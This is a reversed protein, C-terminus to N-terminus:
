FGIPARVNCPAHTADAGNMLQQAPSAAGCAECPPCRAPDLPAHKRKHFRAFLDSLGGTFGRCYLDASSLTSILDVSTPIESVRCWGFLGQFAAMLRNLRDLAKPVTLPLCKFDFDACLGAKSHASTFAPSKGGVSDLSSVLPPHPPLV